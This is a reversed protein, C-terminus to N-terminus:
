EPVYRLHYLALCVADKEDIDTESLYRGLLNDKPLDTYTFVINDFFKDFCYFDYLLKLKSEEIHRVAMGDPLNGEDLMVKTQSDTWLILGNKAKKRDMFLHLYEVACRDLEYNDNVLVLVVSRYTIGHILSFFRWFLYGHIM